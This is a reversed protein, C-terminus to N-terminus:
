LNILFHWLKSQINVKKLPLPTYLPNLIQQGLSSPYSSFIYPTITPCVSNWATKSNADDKGQLRRTMYGSTEFGANKLQFHQNFNLLKVVAILAISPIELCGNTASQVVRASLWHHANHKSPLSHYNNVLWRRSASPKPIVTFCNFSCYRSYSLSSSGPHCIFSM